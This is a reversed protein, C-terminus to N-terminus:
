LDSRSMDIENAVSPRPIHHSIVHLLLLAIAPSTTVKRHSLGPPIVLLASKSTMSLAALQSIFVAMKVADSLNVSTSDVNSSVYSLVFVVDTFLTHAPNLPLWGVWVKGFVSLTLLLSCPDGCHLYTEGILLSPSFTSKPFITFIPSINLINTLSLM